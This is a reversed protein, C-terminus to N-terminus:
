SSKQLKLNLYKMKYKLYKYKFDNFGRQCNILSTFEGEPNPLCIHLAKPKGPTTISKLPPRAIPQSDKSSVLSQLYVKADSLIKTIKPPEINPMVLKKKQKQKILTEFHNGCLRIYVKPKSDDIHLFKISILYKKIDDFLTQQKDREYIIIDRNTIYIATIVEILTGWRNGKMQQIYEQVDKDTPQTLVHIYPNISNFFKIDSDIPEVLLKNIIHLLNNCILNRVKLVDMGDWELIGQKLSHFLCHGDGPTNIRQFYEISSTEPLSTGNSFVGEFIDYLQAITILQKGSIHGIKTGNYKDYLEDLYDIHIQIIYMPLDAGKALIIEKIVYLITDIKHNKNM